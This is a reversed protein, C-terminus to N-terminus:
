AVVPMVERVFLDLSRLSQAQTLSGWAFAGVVHNVGGEAVLESVQARVTAPSGILITQAALGADWDFLMDVSHDDHRHWLRTISDYWTRYAERAIRMAEADTEAIFIQRMAALRPEAVHGNIRGTDDRHEAWTKRYAATLQRLLAVPGLSAFHFGHRAAYAVSDPNHTPYWLPPYPRQLPALEMPVDHYQFHRGQYNLTPETMAARFVELAEDFIERTGAADIGFCALEHPSVGRSIGLEVRGGSLHDLMCVEEVLRLPEYLPLLFAMPGFRLRRTRQAVASLFVAPSPAMGLPTGHHEAMHYAYFGAEDAAAILQLREEYLQQTSGVGRDVWDFMGFTVTGVQEGQM